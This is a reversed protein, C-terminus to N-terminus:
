GAPGGVPGLKATRRGRGSLDPSRHSGERRPHPSLGRADVREALYHDAIAIVDYPGAVPVTSGTGQMEAVEGAVRGTQGVETQILLYARDM